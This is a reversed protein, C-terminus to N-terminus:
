RSQQRQNKMLGCLLASKNSAHQPGSEVYQDLLVLADEPSFQRLADLARNDLDTRQLIGSSCFPHTLANMRGALSGINGSQYIEELRETVKPDLSEVPSRGEGDKEPSREDCM